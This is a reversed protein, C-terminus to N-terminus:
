PSKRQPSPEPDITITARQETELTYCKVSIGQPPNQGIRRIASVLLTMEMEKAGKRWEASKKMRVRGDPNVELLGWGAPLEEKKIMDAPAMYYRENGMGLDPHCRTPKHADRRFDARSAKCEIMISRFSNWGICDPTESAASTM